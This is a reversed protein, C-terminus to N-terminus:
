IVVYRALKKKRKQLTRKIIQVNNMFLSIFFYNVKILSKKLDTKEDVCWIM